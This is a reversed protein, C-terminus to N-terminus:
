PPWRAWPSRTCGPPPRFPRASCPQRSSRWRSLSVPLWAFGVHLVWVIPMCSARHGQWQGLQLALLLAAVAAMFAAYVGGPLVLDVLLVGAVAVLAARDLPQFRRIRIDNGLQKLAASMANLGMFLPAISNAANLHFHLNSAFLLALLGIFVLNRRNGSRLLAPLLMLALAPLFALDVIGAWLPPLGLPITMVVRGALWLLVLAALPAGAYGRQNTWSPVATLLFGAMAAAIFGFLMEHAHWVPAPLATRPLDIGHLALIWLPIAIAAHIGALLFFPRFGYGLVVPYRSKAPKSGPKLEVFQSAAKSKM